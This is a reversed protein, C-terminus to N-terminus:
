DADRVVLLRVMPLLIAAFAITTQAGADTSADCGSALIILLVAIRM